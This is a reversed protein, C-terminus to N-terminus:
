SKANLLHKFIAMCIAEFFKAVTILNITAIVQGFQKTSNNSDNNKYYM